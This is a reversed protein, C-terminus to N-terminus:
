AAKATKPTIGAYYGVVDANLYKGSNRVNVEVDIFDGVGPLPLGNDPWTVDSFDADGCLIRVTTMTYPQGANPGTKYLGSRESIRRVEGTARLLM